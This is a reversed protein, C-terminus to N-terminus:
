SISLRNSVSEKQFQPLSDGLLAKVKDSDLSTSKVTTYSIKYDEGFVVLTLNDKGSPKGKKVAYEKIEAKISKMQEDILKQTATLERYKAVFQDLEKKNKCM